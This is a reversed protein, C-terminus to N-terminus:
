FKEQLIGILYTLSLPTSFAVGQVTFLRFNLLKLVAFYSFDMLVPIPQVRLRNLPFNM